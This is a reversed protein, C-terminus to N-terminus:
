RGSIGIKDVLVEHPFDLVDRVLRDNMGVRYAFDPASLTAYRIDKGIDSEISKVVRDLSSTNVNDGVVFLDLRSEPNKTFVGAMLVAKIRGTKEIRKVIKKRELSHTRVLFDSLADAYVFKTDLVFAKERTKKAVMRKGKKVQVTRIVSTKKVLGAKILESIETNIDRPKAGLKTSLMGVDFATGPNFLFLRMAKVKHESGFIRALTDM